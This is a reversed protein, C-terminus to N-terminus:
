ASKRGQAPGFLEFEVAFKFMVYLWIAVWLTLSVYMWPEPVPSRSISFLAISAAITLMNRRGARKSLEITADRLESETRLLRRREIRNWVYYFLCVIVYLATAVAIASAGTISFNPGCIDILSQNLVFFISLILIDWFLHYSEYKVESRGIAISSVWNAAINLFNVLAICFIAFHSLGFSGTGFLDVIPKSLLLACQGAM